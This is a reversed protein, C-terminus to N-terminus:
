KILKAAAMFFDAFEEKHIFDVIMEMFVSPELKHLEDLSLNSTRELLKFVEDECEDIREFVIQIIDFAIAGKALAKEDETQAEEDAKKSKLYNNFAQSFSNVGFKKIFRVMAFLDTANLRRFEYPKETNVEIETIEEKEKKKAAM